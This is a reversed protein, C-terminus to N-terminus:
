MGFIFNAPLRVIDGLQYVLKRSKGLVEDGLTIRLNVVEPIRYYLKDYKQSSASGTKGTIINLNKTKLEPNFEINVQSGSKESSEAPGTSESFRCLTVPKGTMDKRPIVQYRFIRKEKLTKGTFLETYEKEMRNIEDIAAKDQPFLNTEGTLILHKGDRLEMLRIAAKEALEDVTLKRKKEILYPIRVFATDVSVIRYLTDRNNQFYEDSGLDSVNLHNLDNLDRLVNDSDSNYIEPNLDLILGTKKLSLVNTQFISNTEIIYFQEPDLEEHTRVNIATISWFENESKIIDNLGLLDGAFRSYPGPKEIIREAELEVDVVTLPLGYVLGGESTATKGSLPTVSYKSNGMNRNVACSASIMAMIFFCVLKTRNRM